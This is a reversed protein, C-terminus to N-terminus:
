PCAGWFSLLLGLDAGSVVGDGNIDSVTTQTAPGWQSLLVGLDAGNVQGDVFLDGPCELPAFAVFGIHEQGNYTGFGVIVKGDGSVDDASWLSSWGAANAGKARLYDLLNVRGSAATWRTAIGGAANFVSGVIVAGDYSVGQPVFGPTSGSLSGDTSWITGTYGGSAAYGVILNGDGSVATVRSQYHGPPMALEVFDGAGIWCAARWDQGPRLFWGGVLGGNASVSSAESYTTGVPTTLPVAGDSPTWRVAFYPGTGYQGTVQYGVVVQADSSCSTAVGRWPTGAVVGASNWVTAIYGNTPDRSSGVITAGDESVCLPEPTGYGAPSPLSQPVAPAQLRFGPRGVVVSGDRSVATPEQYPSGIPTISAVYDSGFCAVATAGMVIASVPVQIKLKSTRGPIWGPLRFRGRM